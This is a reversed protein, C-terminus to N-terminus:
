EHGLYGRIAHWAWALLAKAEDPKKKGRAKDLEGILQETVGAELGHQKLVAGALYPVIKNSPRVGAPKGNVAGAPAPPQPQAAPAAPTTPTTAAAPPQKVPTAPTAQTTSTPKSSKISKKKERAEKRLEEMRAEQRMNEIRNATTKTKTKAMDKTEEAHNPNIVAPRRGAKDLQVYFQRAAYPDDFHKAARGGPADYEVAVPPMRDSIGPM